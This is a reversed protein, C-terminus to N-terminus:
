LGYPTFGLDKKWTNGYKATLNKAVIQNNEKAKGAMYKSIVCNQYNVAIGYKNKFEDHNKSMIGFQIFHLPKDSNQTKGTQHDNKVNKLTSLETTQASALFSSSVLVILIFSNFTKM